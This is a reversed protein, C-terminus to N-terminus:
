QSDLTIALTLVALASNFRFATHGIAVFVGAVFRAVSWMSLRDAHMKLVAPEQSKRRLQSSEASLREEGAVCHKAGWL